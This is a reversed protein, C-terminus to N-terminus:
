CAVDIERKGYGTSVIRASTPAPHPPPAVHPSFGSDVLDIFGTETPNVDSGDEPELFHDIYSSGRRQLLGSSLSAASEIDM